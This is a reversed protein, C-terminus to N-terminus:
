TSTIRTAQSWVAQWEGGRREYIDTHWFRNVDRGGPFEAEILVRYRLAAAEPGLLRVAVDGEPEFRRYVLERRAVQGLYATKSLAAGGPTVLQYDDAHLAEAIGMDAAVLAALRRREVGRLTSM